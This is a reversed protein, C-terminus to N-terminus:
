QAFSEAWKKVDSEKWRSSRGWKEPKPLKGEKIQRYIFTHSVKFRAKIEKLDIRNDLQSTTQNTIDTM